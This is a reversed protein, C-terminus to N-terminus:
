PEISGEGAFSVSPFPLGADNLTERWFSAPRYSLEGAIRYTAGQPVQSTVAAPLLLTQAGYGPLTIQASRRGNFAQVGNIWVDYRIDALPIQRDDTNEAFLDFTVVTAADTQQAVRAGRVALSPAKASSCGELAVLFATLALVLSRM